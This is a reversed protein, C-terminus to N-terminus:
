LPPNNKVLVQQMGFYPLTGRSRQENRPTIKVGDGNMPQKKKIKRKILKKGKKRKEERKRKKIKQKKQPPPPPTLNLRKVVSHCVGGPGREQCSQIAKRGHNESQIFKRTGKITNKKKLTTMKSAPFCNYGTEYHSRRSFHETQDKIDSQYLRKDLIILM